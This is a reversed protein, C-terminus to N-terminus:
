RPRLLRALMASGSIEEDVVVAQFTRGQHLRALGQEVSEVFVPRYGRPNVTLCIRQRDAQDLGVMLIDGHQEISDVAAAHAVRLGAFWQTAKVGASSLGLGWMTFVIALALTAPSFGHACTRGAVLRIQRKEKSATQSVVISSM